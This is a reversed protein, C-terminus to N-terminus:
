MYIGPIEYGSDIFTLRILNDYEGYGLTMGSPDGCVTNPMDVEGTYRVLDACENYELTMGSPDACVTNPVNSTIM